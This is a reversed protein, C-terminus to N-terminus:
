KLAVGDVLRRFRPMVEDRKDARAIGVMRIYGDPAFRITQMVIVPQESPGDKAKAVIEHWESGGLRFGQARELVTEKLMTNAVLAQRAFVDRQEATPPAPAFSQAVIMIPQEADKVVDKPGDTMLLANGAMARVPRFGAPDGIRFPLSAVQQEVSLPPRLAVTKLAAKAEDRAAQAAGVPLQAIVLATMTGDGTLLIAKPIARGNDNQEGAVLTAESKGVTLKDRSKLTFGQNKLAEDGFGAVLTSYAEAPMEIAVIAAGTAPDQFGAVGRTLKMSKPPVLGIRSGPPFVPEAALAAGAALLALVFTTPRLM